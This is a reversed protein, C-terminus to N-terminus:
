LFFHPTKNRMKSTYTKFYLKTTLKVSLCNLKLKKLKKKKHIFIIKKTVSYATFTRGEKRQEKRGEKM